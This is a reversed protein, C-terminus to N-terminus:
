TRRKTWGRGWRGADGGAGGVGDAGPVGPREAPPPFGDPAFGDPGVPEGVPAWHRLAAAETEIDRSLAALDEAGFRRARDQAAWRLQDAASTIARTRESLDPLRAAIRAPDPEKELLRLEADLEYAHGRLRRLLAGAESLSADAGAGAALVEGASGVSTRLALRLEALRGAPGLRVYSRARLMSEEVGRRAGEVGRRVGRHLARVAVVTAVTALAAFAVVLFAIVAITTEV